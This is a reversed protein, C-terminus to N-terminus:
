LCSVNPALKWSLFSGSLSVLLWVSIPYSLFMSGYLLVSFLSISSSSSSSPLRKRSKYTAMNSSKTMFSKIISCALSWSICPALTGLDSSLRTEAPSWSTSPSFDQLLASPHKLVLLLKQSLTNHLLPLLRDQYLQLELYWLTLPIHVGRWSDEQVNKTLFYLYDHYSFTYLFPVCWYFSGGKSQFPLHGLDLHCEWSVLVVGGLVVVLKNACLFGEKVGVSCLLDLIIKFSNSVDSYLCLKTLPGVMSVIYPCPVPIVDLVWLTTWVEPIYHKYVEMALVTSTKPSSDWWSNSIFFENIPGVM